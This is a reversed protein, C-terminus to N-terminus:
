PRRPFCLLSARGTLLLINWLVSCSCLGRRQTQQIEEESKMKTVFSQYAKISRVVLAESYLIGHQPSEARKNTSDPYNVAYSAWDLTTWRTCFAFGGLAKELSKLIILFIIYWYMLRMWNSACKTTTLRPLCMHAVFMWRWITPITRSPEVHSNVEAMRSRCDLDRQHVFNKAMAM